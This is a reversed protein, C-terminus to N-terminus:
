IRSTYGLVPQKNFNFEEVEHNLILITKPEVEIPFFHEYFCDIFKKIKGNHIYNEFSNNLIPGIEITLNM